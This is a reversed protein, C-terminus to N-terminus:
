KFWSRTIDNNLQPVAQSWRKRLEESRQEQEKVVGQIGIGCAWLRMQKGLSGPMEADRHPKGPREFPDRAGGLIPYSTWLWHKM